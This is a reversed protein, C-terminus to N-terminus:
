RKWSVLWTRLRVKAMRQKGPWLVPTVRQCRVRGQKWAMLFWWCPTIPLCAPSQPNILQWSNFPRNSPPTKMRRTKLEIVVLPLGNIFLVLDPRKNVHNEIVTFQNAVVFENNEPREFDVLWVYEGREDGDQHRSVKVGETLLRHFAENNALLDPSQIRAVEKSAEAILTDPLHPNIRRIAQTLRETLLVEDYRSREPHESDPAIDPAHIYDYGLREFLKIAFEEIASETLRSM